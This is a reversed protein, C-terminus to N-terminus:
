LIPLANGTYDTLGNLDIALAEVLAPIVVAQEFALQDGKERHVHFSSKQLAGFLLM